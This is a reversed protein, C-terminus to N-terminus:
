EAIRAPAIATHSALVSAVMRQTLMAEYVVLAIAAAGAALGLPLWLAVLPVVLLWGFAAALYLLWWRKILARTDADNPSVCERLSEYPWWFNVIPIFWSIVALVPERPARYGLAIGNTIARHFWVLLLVLGILSLPSVLASASSAAMVQGMGDPVDNSYPNESAYRIIKVVGNAMVGFVVFSLLQGAAIAWVAWRVHRVSDAEKVLDVAPAARAAPAGSLHGTWTAGDWWRLPAAHWPDPYWGAAAPGDDVVAAPYQREADISAM